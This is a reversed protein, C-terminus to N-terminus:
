RRLQLLDRLVRDMVARGLRAGAIGSFRFHIGGNVRGDIMAAVIAAPTDIERTAPARSPNWYRLAPPGAPFSTELFRAIV